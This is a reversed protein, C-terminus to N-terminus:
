GATSSLCSRTAGAVPLEGGPSFCRQVDVVLLADGEKLIKRPDAM